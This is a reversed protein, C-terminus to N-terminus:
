SLIPLVFEFTQRTINSRTIAPNLRIAALLTGKNTIQSPTFFEQGAPLSPNVSADVFVGLERIVESDNETYDFVVRFYLLDTPSPVVQYRGHPTILSGNNDAVAYGITAVKRRGVEHTLDSLGNIIASQYDAAAWAADGRGWALTLPANGIISAIKAKGNKTIQLM